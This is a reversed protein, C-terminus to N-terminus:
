TTTCGHSWQQYAVIPVTKNIIKLGSGYAWSQNNWWTTGNDKLTFWCNAGNTHGTADYIYENMTGFSSNPETFNSIFISKGNYINASSLALAAQSQTTANATNIQYYNGLPMITKTYNYGTADVATVAYQIVPVMMFVVCGYSDTTGVYNTSSNLIRSAAPESLGYTDQMTATAGSLGGPLTSLLANAYVPTGVIPNNNADLIQFIVQPATWVVNSNAVTAASAKTLQVTEVRNSDVVYSMAKADYGSAFAYLLVSSYEYTGTFVGTSTTQNGGNSDTVTVVPIPLNTDKDVFTIQLTFEPAMILDQRTFGSLSSGSVNIYHTKTLTNSITANDAQYAQLTVNFLGNSTYQHAPNQLVSTTSDGFNWSWATPYGTSSDTFNITQYSMPNTNDSSFATVPYPWDGYTIPTAIFNHIPYAVTGNILTGSTFFSSFNTDTTYRDYLFKVDVLNTRNDYLASIKNTGGRSVNFSVSGGVNDISSSVLVLDAYNTLNPIVALAKEHLPDFNVGGLLYTADTLNQAQVTRNRTGGFSQNYIVALDGPNTKYRFTSYPSTDIMGGIAGNYQVWPTSFDTTFRPTGQAYRFEDIRFTHENGPGAAGIIFPNATDFGGTMGMKATKLVGNIYVNEYHSTNRSIVVHTWVNNQIYVGETHNAAANGEWWSWGQQTGNINYFGWGDTTEGTGTSRKLLPKGPDGISSVNLWFEIEGSTTSRDWIPSSPSSLYNNSDPVLMSGAGFKKVATDISTGVPGNNIWSVGKRDSLVSSNLDKWSKIFLDDDTTLTITSSNVNFGGTANTVNLSVTYPYAVTYIHQPNQQASTYGDGFTWNWTTPSGTSTDTFQVVWPYAYGTTTNPTFQSLVGTGTSPTEYMYIETIGAGDGGGGNATSTINFYSYGISNSFPFSKPATSGWVIGTQTDLTTWTTGDNSVNFKWATPTDATGDQRPWITYNTVIHTAPTHLTIWQPQGATSVWGIDSTVHNFAKYCDYPTDVISKCTTTNGAPLSNSTM